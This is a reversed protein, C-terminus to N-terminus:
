PNLSFRNKAAPAFASTGVLNSHNIIVSGQSVYGKEPRHSIHENTRPSLRARSLLLNRQEV